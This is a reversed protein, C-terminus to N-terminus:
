KFKIQTVAQNFKDILEASVTVSGHRFISGDIPTKDLINLFSNSVRAQVVNSQGAWEGIKKVEGLSYAFQKAEM